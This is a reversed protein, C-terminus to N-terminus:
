QNILLKNIQTTFFKHELLRTKHAINHAQDGPDIATKTQFIVAGEDYKHNVYHITIGTEKDQNTAIAEFVNDGYMGKGGYLPLLSPHINIIKNPFEIIYKPPIKWLFGALVILDPKVELLEDLVTTKFATKDFISTKVKHKKALNLVGAKPNNCYVKNVRAILSHKFYIIIQQANTGAGSAFIVINKM